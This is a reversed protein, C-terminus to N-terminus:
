KPEQVKSKTLNAPDLPLLLWLDTVKLLGANSPHPDHFMRGNHYVVVHDCGREAPGCVLHYGSPIHLGNETAHREYLTFGQTTLFERLAKFWNKHELFHPVSEMPLNFISAICAQM